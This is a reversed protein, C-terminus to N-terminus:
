QDNQNTTAMIRCFTSNCVKLIFRLKLKYVISNDCNLSGAINMELLLYKLILVSYKNLRIQM